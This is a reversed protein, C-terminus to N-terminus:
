KADAYISRDAERNRGNHQRLWGIMPVVSVGATFSPGYYDVQLNSIQGDLEEIKAPQSPM